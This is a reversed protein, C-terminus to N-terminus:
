DEALIQYLEKRAQQVVAIGREIQAPDGAGALQKAASMLQATGLRLSRVEDPGVSGPWSPRASEAEARGQDTLSYVRSGEQVSSRVMGEDELMQLHPYISGPSPHWLGESMEELRRMVQYGHAPEERLAALIATRIAGRPMRRAGGWGGRGAGWRRRGGQMPHGAFPHDDGHGRRHHHRVDDRDHADRRTEDHEHAPHHHM